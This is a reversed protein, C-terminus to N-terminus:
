HKAEARRLGARFLLMACAAGLAEGVIVAAVLGNVGWLRNMILMLPIYFVLQRLISHILTGRGNGMAQMCFSSHYNLFQVPSALCRIRLFGAALAITTLADAAADGSTSLFIEAVSPAFVMFLVVCVASIALGCIRATKVTEGMRRRDGSSYNYAVIPLMGQCIGINIANPLREAKMVIGVAALPLDGHGAMQNNLVITALDFLGNLLASPVGVSFIEKVDERRIGRVAAPNCSIPAKKSVRFIMVIMYICAAANSILTALAAGMVEMGPPLIVFMFLPDLAINLIGGGSLGISAQRSFGLNRLLHAAAASVITPTSGLIVVLWVYQEAYGMTADSAGLLRLLPGMFAWILLSYALGAILAGYFSFATVKRAEEEKGQGLLRAALSGGGIGFLNSFAITFMFLTFVVTVAAVKYSDGTRGIFFTDVMNYVLNVLQSIITPVAMTAIARPVPVREFLEKKNEGDM